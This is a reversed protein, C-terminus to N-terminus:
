DLSRARAALERCRTVGEADQMEEFLDAAQEAIVDAEEARGQALRIEALTHLGEAGTAAHGVARGKELARLCWEEAEDLRGVMRLADALNGYGVAAGSGHDLREFEPIARRYADVAEDLLGRRSYTTGLNMLSGALEEVNGIRGALEIARLFVAAADELRGAAGLANGNMRLAVTVGHLDGIREFLAEAARAHALAKGSDGRLVEVRALQALLQGVVADDREGVAELGAELAAVAGTTDGAVSLKRGEELRDRATEDAVAV